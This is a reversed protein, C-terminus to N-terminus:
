LFCPHTKLFIEKTNEKWRHVKKLKRRGMETSINNLSQLFDLPLSHLYHLVYPMYFILLPLILSQPATLSHAATVELTTISIVSSLEESCNCITYSLCYGCSPFQVSLSGEEGPSYYLQPIGKRSTKSIWGLYLDLYDSSNIICSTPRLM